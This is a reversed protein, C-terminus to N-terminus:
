ITLALIIFGLMPACTSHHRVARKYDSQLEGLSTNRDVSRALVERYKTSILLVKVNAAFISSEWNNKQCKWIGIHCNGMSYFSWHIRRLSRTWPTGSGYPQLLDKTLRLLYLMDRIITGVPTWNKAMYEHYMTCYYGWIVMQVTSFAWNKSCIHFNQQYTGFESFNQRLRYTSKLAFMLLVFHLKPSSINTLM